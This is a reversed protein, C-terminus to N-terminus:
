CVSQWAHNVAAGTVFYKLPRIRENILNNVNLLVLKEPNKEPGGRSITNVCNKYVYHLVRAIIHEHARVSHGKLHDIYHM